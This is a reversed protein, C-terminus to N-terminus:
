ANKKYNVFITGKSWIFALGNASFILIFSIIAWRHRGEVYYLAQAISIIACFMIIIYVIERKQKSIMRLGVLIGLIAFLLIATYYYKYIVLWYKPYNLCQTSTFWWFYYLKKVFLTLFERPNSKIFNCGEQYFFKNQEFENLGKIKKLTAEPITWVISEGNLANATGVSNPHNGTWFNLGSDNPLVVIKHFVLYNRIVLLSLILLIGTLISLVPYLVKKHLRKMNLFVALIAFPIFLGITPRTLLATGITLGSLFSNKFIRRGEIVSILFYISLTFLLADLTLPHLKVSYIILGPHFSMLILAALGTKEGFLRTSIKYILSCTLVSVLIQFIKVALFSHQTICYIGACIFSYLLISTSRFKSDLCTYSLGKGELFNNAAEEYEWVQPHSINEVTFLAGLRLLLAICLWVFLAKNNAFVSTM